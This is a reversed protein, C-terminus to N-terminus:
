CLFVIFLATEPSMIEPVVAGTIAVFILLFATVIFYKGFKKLVDINMTFLLM